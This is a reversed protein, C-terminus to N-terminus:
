DEGDYEYLSEFTFADDPVPGPQVREAFEHIQAKWAMWREHTWGIHPWDGERRVIPKPASAETSSSEPSSSEPSPPEPLLSALYAEPSLGREQAQAQIREAIPDSLTLPM